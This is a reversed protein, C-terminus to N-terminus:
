PQDTLTRLGPVYQMAVSKDCDAGGDAKSNGCWGTGCAGNSFTTALPTV